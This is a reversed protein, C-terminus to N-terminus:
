DGAIPDVLHLNRTPTPREPKTGLAANFADPDLQRFFSPRNRLGDPPAGARVARAVDETSRAPGDPAGGALQLQASVLWGDPHDPVAATVRRIDDFAEPPLPGPAAGNQEAQLNTQLHAAARTLRAGVLHPDFALARDCDAKAEAFRGA